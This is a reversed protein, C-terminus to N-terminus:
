KADGERVWQEVTDVIGRAEPFFLEDEYTDETMAFVTAGIVRAVKGILEERTM